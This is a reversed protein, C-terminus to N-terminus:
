AQEEEDDDQFTILADYAEDYSSYTGLDVLVGGRSLPADDPSKGDALEVVTLGDDLEIIAFRVM